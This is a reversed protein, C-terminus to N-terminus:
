PRITIVLTTISAPSSTSPASFERAIRRLSPPGSASWTVIRRKTSTSTPRPRVTSKAAAESVESGGATSRVWSRAVRASTAPRNVGRIGVRREGDISSIGMSSGSAGRVSASRAQDSNLWWTEPIRTSTM